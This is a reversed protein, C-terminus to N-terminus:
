RLGLEEALRRPRDSFLGAVGLALLRRAEGADDVTYVLLPREGAAHVLEATALRVNAHLSWAGLEEGARLLRAPDRSELPALPLEPAGRHLRALLEHDFSSILLQERGAIAAALAAVYADRDAERRKLEINLPFTPPVAALLGALTPLAGALVAAAGEPGARERALALAVAVLERTTTREVVRVDGGGLRQLDWDHFVVLTGDAALQVDVEAMPASQEVAGLISPITNELLEASLGRHAVIWPRAPLLLPRMPMAIRLGVYPGPSAGARAAGVVARHCRVIGDRRM